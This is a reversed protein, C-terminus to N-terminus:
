DSGYRPSFVSMMDRIKKKTFNRAAYTLAISIVAISGYRLKKNEKFLESLRSKYNM